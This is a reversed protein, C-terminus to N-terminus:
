AKCYDGPPGTDILFCQLFLATYARSPKLPPLHKEIKHPTSRTDPTEGSTLFPSGARCIMGAYPGGQFGVDLLAEPDLWSMM